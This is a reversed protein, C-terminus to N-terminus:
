CLFKFDRPHASCCVMFIGWTFQAGAYSLGVEEYRTENVQQTGSSDTYVKLANAYSLLSLSRLVSGALPTPLSRKLPLSVSPRSRILLGM